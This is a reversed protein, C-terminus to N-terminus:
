KVGSEKKFFEIEVCACILHYLQIHFEQIRYTIPSPVKITVDCLDSLASDKNGTFAISTVGKTKAILAANVVNVSNGSTSLGILIDRKKGYGFIQQAFIMDPSVDNCFATILATQSVLSYAPLAMQLNNILFTKKDDSIDLQNIREISTDDIERSLTFGKMLEGVIHESDSASGGNGCLYVTGNNKYCEIIIDITTSVIQKCSELQPNEIFFTDFYEQALHQM